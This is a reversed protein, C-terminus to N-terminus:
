VPHVNAAQLGKPGQSVEYEVKQGSGTGKVWFSFGGYGSWNQAASLNDSFGGYGSM